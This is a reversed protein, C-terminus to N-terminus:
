TRHLRTLEATDLAYGWPSRGALMYWPRTKDGNTWVSARAGLQRYGPSTYGTRRAARPTLRTWVDMRRWIVGRPWPRPITGAPGIKIRTLHEPPERDFTYRTLM